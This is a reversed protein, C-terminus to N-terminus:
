KWNLKPEAASNELDMISMGLIKSAQKTLYDYTPYARESVGVAKRNRATDTTYSQPKGKVRTIKVMRGRLDVEVMVRHSTIYNAGLQGNKDVDPDYGDSSSEKEYSDTYDMRVETSDDFEIYAAKSMKYLSDVIVLREDRGIFVYGELPITKDANGKTGEEGSDNKKRPVGGGLERFKALPMPVTDKLEISEIAGRPTLFVDVVRVNVHSDVIKPAAAAFSRDERVDVTQSVPLKKVQAGQAIKVSVRPAGNRHTGSSSIQLVQVDTFKSVKVGGASPTGETRMAKAERQAERGAGRLLPMGLEARMKNVEAEYEAKTATLQAGQMIYAFVIGGHGNMVLQVAQLTVKGNVEDPDFAYFIGKDKLVELLEADNERAALAKYQNEFNQNHEEKMFNQSFSVLQNKGNQARFLMKVNREGNSHSGQYHIEFAHGRVVYMKRGDPLATPEAGLERVLKSM